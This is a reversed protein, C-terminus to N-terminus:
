ADTKEEIEREEDTLKEESVKQPKQQKESAFKAEDAFKHASPDPIQDEHVRGSPDPEGTQRGQDKDTWAQSKEETLRKRKRDDTERNPFSSRRIEGESPVRPRPM